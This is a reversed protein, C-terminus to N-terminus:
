RSIVDKVENLHHRVSGDLIRGDVEVIVGGLLAPDLSFEMAVSSRCLGELKKSLATKEDETLPVTTTVKAHVVHESAALLQRYEEVSERFGGIRGRETLLQLYSVVDEPLSSFAQEIASLREDISVSPSSLFEIYEPNEDFVAAVIDLAGNIEHKTDKECALMFLATGYEKSIEAM